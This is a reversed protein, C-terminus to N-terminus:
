RSARSWAARPGTARASRQAAHAADDLQVDDGVRGPRRRLAEDLRELRLERFLLELVDDMRADLGDVVEAERDRAFGPGGDDDIREDVLAHTLAIRSRHLTRAQVVAVEEPM